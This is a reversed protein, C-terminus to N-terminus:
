EAAAGIFISSVKGDKIDFILGGFESGAVIIDPGGWKNKPDIEKKYAKLVEAKSSGIGIGKSTKLESPSYISINGVLQTKNQDRCFSIELGKSRYYWNQYLCGDAEMLEEKSKEDPEGFQTLVDSSTVANNLVFKSEVAVIDDQSFISNQLFLCIFIISFIIGKKM